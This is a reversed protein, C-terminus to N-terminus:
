KFIQVVLFLSCVGYCNLFKVLKWCDEAVGEVRVKRGKEGMAM